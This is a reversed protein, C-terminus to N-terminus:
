ILAVVSDPVEDQGISVWKWELGVKTTPFSGFMLVQWYGGGNYRYTNKGYRITKGIVEAETPNNMPLGGM